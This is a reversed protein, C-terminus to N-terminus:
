EDDGVEKMDVGSVFTFRYKDTVDPYKERDVESSFMDYPRIYVRFNGYLAEYVVYMEGTESHEAITLVRYMKGKFHRYVGGTIIRRRAM